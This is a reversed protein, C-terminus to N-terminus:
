MCVYKRIHVITHVHTYMYVYVCIYMHQIGIYYLSIHICVHMNAYIFLYYAYTCIYIYICQLNYQKGIRKLM